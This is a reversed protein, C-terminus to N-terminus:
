SEGGRRDFGSDRAGQDAADNAGLNNAASDSRHTLAAPSGEIKEFKVPATLDGNPPGGANESDSRRPASPHAPTPSPPQRDFGSDRVRLREYEAVTKRRVRVSPPPNWPLGSVRNWTWGNVIGTIAGHTVGFRKGISVRGEGGRAAAIIAPIDADKLKDGGSRFLGVYRAHAMNERHTVYELNEPRNNLPNGDIHNVEKGAPCEGLFASAVLRHAIYNKRKGATAFCCMLRGNTAKFLARLLGNARIRGINSAFADPISPIPRWIEQVATSNMM